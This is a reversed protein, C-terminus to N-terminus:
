SNTDDCTYGKADSKHSFVQEYTEADWVFVQGKETGAAIWRGDKLCRSVLCERSNGNSGNTQQRERAVIQWLITCYRFIQRARTM